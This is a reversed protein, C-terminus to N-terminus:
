VALSLGLQIGKQPHPRVSDVRVRIPAGRTFQTLPQGGVVLAVGSFDEGEGGDQESLCRAIGTALDGVTGKGLLVWTEERELMRRVAGFQASTLDASSGATAARILRSLDDSRSLRRFWRRALDTVESAGWNVPLAALAPGIGGEILWAVFADAV